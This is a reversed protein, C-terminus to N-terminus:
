GNSTGLFHIKSLAKGDAGIRLLQILKRMETEQMQRYEVDKARIDADALFHQLGHFCSALPDGANVPDNIVDDLMKLGDLVDQLQDALVQAKM